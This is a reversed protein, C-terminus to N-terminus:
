AHNRAIEDCIALRLHEIFSGQNEQNIWKVYIVFAYYQEGLEVANGKRSVKIGVEPKSYSYPGSRAPQTNAWRTVLSMTIRNLTELGESNLVAFALHMVHDTTRDSEPHGQCSYTSVVNKLDRSATITNRMLPDCKPMGGAIWADTKNKILEFFHEEIFM